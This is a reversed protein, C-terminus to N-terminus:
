DEEVLKKKVSFHILLLSVICLGYFALAIPSKFLFTWEGRGMLLGQRLAKEAGPGVIFGLM